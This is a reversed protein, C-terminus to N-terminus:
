IASAEIAKLMVGTLDDMVAKPGITIRLHKEDNGTFIRILYGHEAAIAKIKEVDYGVLRIYVFNADSEYVKIGNIANLRDSFEQRAQLLEATIRSYYAKDKLAAIAMRKSIHPLRHLPMDLWLVNKLATSCIGYGIRLNALGYYKSFTRSFVLNDYTQILRAVDLTYTKFGLYAEDVLMLTDPYSRVIDELAEDDIANGTPMAPTTIIAIKPNYTQIMEHITKVDHACKTEGELIPYRVINLFKYDCLGTYYSWGPDPLLITDGHAAIMGLISKINEASGNNLFMNESPIGLEESLAELLDDKESSEYLCLDTPALEHLTELCKQSPGFLNENYHLRGTVQETPVGAYRTIGDYAGLLRKSQKM